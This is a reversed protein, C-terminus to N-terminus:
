EGLSSPMLPQDEIATTTISLLLWSNPVTCYLPPFLNLSLGTSLHLNHQYVFLNLKFVFIMSYHQKAAKLAQPLTSDPFVDVDNVSIICPEPSDKTTFLAMVKLLTLSSFATSASLPNLGNFISPLQALVSAILLCNSSAM